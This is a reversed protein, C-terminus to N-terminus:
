GACDCGPELDSLDFACTLGTGVQSKDIAVENYSPLRYYLSKRPAEIFKRLDDVTFSAGTSSYWCASHRHALGTSDLLQQWANCLRAYVAYPVDNVTETAPHFVIKEDGLLQSKRITHVGNGDRIGIVPQLEPSSHYGSSDACQYAGTASPQVCFAKTVRRNLATTAQEYAKCIHYVLLASTSTTKLYEARDVIEWIRTEWAVVDELATTFAAYSVGCNALLSALGSVGLGFQKNNPSTCFLPTNPLEQLVKNVDTEMALAADMFDNPLEWITATTYQSLNIVGLTCGGRHPIEVETCLNLVLPENNLGVDPTKCIFCVGEDYATALRELLEPSELLKQQAEQDSNAPIYVGKYAAYFDSMFFEELDPHDYRLWVIGAGNKKTPRRMSGVIADFVKSFSAAGSSEGGSAIRSNRPRLSSLDVSPAGQYASVQLSWEAAEAISGISDGVVFTNCSFGTSKTSGTLFANLRDSKRFREYSLTPHVPKDVNPFLAAGGPLAKMAAEAKRVETRNIKRPM